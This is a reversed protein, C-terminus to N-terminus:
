RRVRLVRVIVKDDWVDSKGSFSVRLAYRTAKRPWASFAYKNKAVIRKKLKVTRGPKFATGLVRLGAKLKGEGSTVSVSIRMKHGRKFPGHLKVKIRPTRLTPDDNSEDAGGPEASGPPLLGIFSTHPAMEGSFWSLSLGSDEPTTSGGWSQIFSGDPFVQDVYGLYWVDGSNGGCGPFVSAGPGGWGLCPGPALWLDGVDPTHDVPYGAEVADVLFCLHPTIAACDKFSYGYRDIAYRKIDPRKEAPWYASNLYAENNFPDRPPLSSQALECYYMNQPTLPCSPTTNFASAAPLATWSPDEFQNTAAFASSCIFVTAVSLACFVSGLTTTAALQVRTFRRRSRNARRNARDAAVDSDM